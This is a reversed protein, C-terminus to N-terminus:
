PTLFLITENMLIYQDSDSRTQFQFIDICRILNRSHTLILQHEYPLGNFAVHRFPQTLYSIRAM